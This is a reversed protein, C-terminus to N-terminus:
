NEEETDLKIQYLIAEMVDKMNLKNTTMSQKYVEYLGVTKIFKQLDSTLDRMVCHERQIKIFKEVIENKKMKKCDLRNFYTNDINSIIDNIVLLQEETLEDSNDYVTEQNGAEM